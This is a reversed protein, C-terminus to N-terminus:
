FFQRLAFYLIALVCLISGIDCLPKEIGDFLHSTTVLRYRQIFIQWATLNPAQFKDVLEYKDYPNEAEVCQKGQPVTEPTYPAQIKVELTRQSTFKYSSM